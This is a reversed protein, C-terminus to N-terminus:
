DTFEEIRCDLGMGPPKCFSVGAGFSIRPMPRPPAVASFMISMIPTPGKMVMGSTTAAMPPGCASSPQITPASSAM